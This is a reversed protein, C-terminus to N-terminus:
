INEYSVIKDDTKLFYQAAKLHLGAPELSALSDLDLWQHDSHENSIAVEGSQYRAVACLQLRGEDCTYAGILGIDSVKVGTEELIERELGAKIDEDRELGGGPLDWHGPDHDDNEDRKLVLARDNEDLVM